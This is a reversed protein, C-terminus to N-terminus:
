SFAGSRRIYARLLHKAMPALVTIAGPSRTMTAAYTESVDGITKSRVGQAQMQARKDEGKARWLAQEYTAKKVNAPIFQSGDDYDATRPFKLGQDPVGSTETTTYKPLNINQADINTTASMLLTDQDATSLALWLAYNITEAFYAAAEARTVYSNAAADGVTADLAM